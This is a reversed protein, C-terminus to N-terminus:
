VSEHGGSPILGSSKAEYAQLAYKRLAIAEENDCPSTGLWRREGKGDM